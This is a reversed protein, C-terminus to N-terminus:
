APVLTRHVGSAVGSNYPLPLVLRFWPEFHEYGLFSLAM